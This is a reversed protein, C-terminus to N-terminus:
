QVGKRLGVALMVIPMVVLGAFVGTAVWFLADGTLSAYVACVLTVLLMAGAGTLMGKIFLRRNYTNIERSTQEDIM